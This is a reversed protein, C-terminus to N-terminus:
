EETKEKGVAPVDLWERDEETLQRDPNIQEILDVLKYRGKAKEAQARETRAKKEAILHAARKRVKERRAPNLKRIIDDVNKM